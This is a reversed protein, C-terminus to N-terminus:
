FLNASAFIGFSNENIKMPGYFDLNNGLGFQYTRYFVGVRLWIYSRDHSDLKTNYNYLGQVRIYLGWNNKFKPKYEVLGLTEFNYTQTLDFRSVLVTLFNPNTFAYQLGTSPRFGTMYNM